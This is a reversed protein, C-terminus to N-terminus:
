GLAAAMIARASAPVGVGDVFVSPTGNVGRALARATVYEVWDIYAGAMVCRAFSDDLGTGLGLQVLEENSLGATGEIYADAPLAPAAIL